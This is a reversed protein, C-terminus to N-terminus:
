DGRSGLGGELEDRLEEVLGAVSCGSIRLESAIGEVFYQSRRFDPPV